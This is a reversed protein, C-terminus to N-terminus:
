AALLTIIIYPGRRSNYGLSIIDKGSLPYPASELKHGRHIARWGLDTLVATGNLSGLDKVYWRGSDKFLEIHMRSIYHGPDVVKVMMKDGETTALPREELLQLNVISEQSTEGSSLSDFEDNRGVIVRQSTLQLEHNRITLMPGSPVQPAIGLLFNQMEMATLFRKSPELQMARM